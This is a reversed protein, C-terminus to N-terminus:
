RMVTAKTSVALGDAEVRFLYTGAPVPDGAADKGDWQVTHRGARLFNQGLLRVLRGSADFVAVDARAARALTFDVASGGRTPNPRVPSVNLQGHVPQAVAVATAASLLAVDHTTIAVDIIAVVSTDALYGDASVIVTHDGGPLEFGYTGTSDTAVSMNYFDAVGITAGSIPLGSEASTVTGALTGILDSYAVLVLGETMDSCPIVGSPLYPYVSWCGTLGFSAPSTDYRGLLAPSTPDSIDFARIGSAYWSCFAIDGKVYVNHASTNTPGNFQSVQIINGLDSVDWVRVTGGFTEDTTLLHIGDPHPWISHTQGASYDLVGILDMEPSGPFASVDFVTMRGGANINAAYAVGDGVWIDHIYEPGLDRIRVPDDLNADLDYAKFGIGTSAGNCYAIGAGEDIWITHATFSEKTSILYPAEPDALSVIQMGAGSGESVIYARDQYVHMDRWTSSVGPIFGTEYPAFPNSVNVISTGTTTGLIAYEAGSTPDSYAWLDNYGAYQDLRGLFIFNNAAGAERPACIAVLALLVLVSASALARVASSHRSADAVAQSAERLPLAM